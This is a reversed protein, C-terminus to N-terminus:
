CSSYKRFQKTSKNTNIPYTRKNSNFNKKENTTIKPPQYNKVLIYFITFHATIKIQSFNLVSHKLLLVFGQM